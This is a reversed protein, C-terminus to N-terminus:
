GASVAYVVAIVLGVAYLAALGVWRRMPNRDIVRLGSEATPDREVGYLPGILFTLIMGGVLGGIHAATDLRFNSVSSPLFGLILNFILLIILQNLHRRGMAGHLDRHQYFYVMEAGFLAFIAGSAGLSPAPTFIFSSLSASLGGLFYIVVFRVRGFLAEVDRGLIYLSYGNLLIHTVNLHLFMSSLLRYYQGNRISENVKAWKDLFHIQGTASLSFFYLFILVNAALLVYTFRPETVNLRVFVQRPGSPPSPPESSSGPKSPPQYHYIM